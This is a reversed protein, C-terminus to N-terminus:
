QRNNLCDVIVVSKKSWSCKRLECIIAVNWLRYSAFCCYIGKEDWMYKWYYCWLLQLLVRRSISTARNKWLLTICMWCVRHSLSHTKVDLGHMEMLLRVIPSLSNFPFYFILPKNFSNEYSGPHPFSLWHIAADTKSRFVRFTFITPPYKHTPLTAFRTNRNKNLLICVELIIIWANWWLM